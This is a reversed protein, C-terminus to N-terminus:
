LCKASGQFRAKQALNPVRLTTSFLRRYYGDIEFDDSAPDRLVVNSATVYKTDNRYGTIENESRALVYIKATVVASFNDPATTYYNAAGDPCENTLVEDDIGFEIHINEIGRAIGGTSEVLSNGQLSWRYLTPLVPQGTVGANEDGIYYINALYRWHRIGPGADLETEEDIQTLTGLGSPSTSLIFATGAPLDESEAVSLGEARAFVLVSTDAVYKDDDICPVDSSPTADGNIVKAISTPLTMQTGTGSCPVSFMSADHELSLGFFGLMNVDDSLSKLAHRANEQMRAHERDQYMNRHGSVFFATLVGIILLGITLGIMAEILSLGFQRHRIAM